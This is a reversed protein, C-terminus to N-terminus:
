SKSYRRNCPSKELDRHPCDIGAKTARRPRQRRGVFGVIGLGGLMLAFTAPEPVPAITLDFGRFSQSVTNFATGVIEGHDNIDSALELVWGASVESASLFSNLDIASGNRWLTAHRVPSSATDSNGVIDGAENIGGAFSNTGGLTGLDLVSGGAIWATAHSFGAGGIYGVVTGAGNIGFAQSGLGGPAGLDIPTGTTAWMTAHTTGAVFSWGAVVGADNIATAQSFDTGGLDTATTGNWTLPRYTSNFGSSTSTGAVIGANNIGYANSNNPPGQPVSPPLAGLDTATGHSSWAAAHQTNSSFIANGVAVGADNIGLGQSSFTDLPDLDTATGNSDWRTAHSPGTASTTSTGVVVGANNVAAAGSGNGGLPDLLALQASAQGACALLLGTALLGPGCSRIRHLFSSMTSERFSTSGIAIKSIAM